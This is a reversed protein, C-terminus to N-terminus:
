QSILEIANGSPDKAIIIRMGPTQTKVHRYGYGQAEIKELVKDFQTTYFAVVPFRSKELPDENLPQFLALFPGEGVGMLVEDYVPSNLYRGVTAGLIDAYFAEAKKRDEVILKAGGVEYAGDRAYVEVANGSPDRTIAIKLAGVNALVQIPHGADKIRATVADFEPTYILVVPYLSKKLPAEAKPNPAFLALSAGKDFGMITEEFLDVNYDYRKKEKMGFMTEYFAQTKALDAVILKSAGIYHPKEVAAPKTEEANVITATFMATLAISSMLMLKRASIM